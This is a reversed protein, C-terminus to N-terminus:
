VKKKFYTKIKKLKHNLVYNNVIFNFLNIIFSFYKYISHKKSIIKPM